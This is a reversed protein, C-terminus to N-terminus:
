QKKANKGNSMLIDMLTGIMADTAERKGLIVRANIWAMKLATMIM